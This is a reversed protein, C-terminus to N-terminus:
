DAAPRSSRALEGSRPRNGQALFHQPADAMKPADETFDRQLRHTFCMEGTIVTSADLPGSGACHDQDAHTLAFVSLYPAGDREPLVEALRDIVQAHVSDPEDALAM